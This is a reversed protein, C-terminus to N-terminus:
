QRRRGAPPRQRGPRQPQRQRRPRRPQRQRRRRHRYGGARQRRDPRQRPQCASEAFGQQDTYDALVRVKQGILTNTLALSAGSGVTTWDTGDRSAQWTYAIPGLGDADALTSAIGLTRGSALAGALTIGGTHPDSIATTADTVDSTVSEAFGHGDTYSASVRIQRGVQADGLTLSSGSGITSWTTGDSSAQWTYTRNGLGDLDALADAVILTQNETATGMVSVSGTAPSNGVGISNGNLLLREALYANGLRIVIDAGATADTGIYLMTNSDVAAIQVQNSVIGTGDGYSAVGSFVAGSVRILDGPTLDIITDNGEGATAYDFIDNGAGGTLTDNGAGGTLTDNGSGGSLANAVANGTLRDSGGGGSANEITVTDYIQVNDKETFFRRGDNYSIDVGLDSWAGPTLDIECRDTGSYEITDIGGGDWICQFYEQSSAFVYTDNGDHYSTNAGYLYQIARIDLSMPTTPYISINDGTDSVGSAVDYSMTTMSMNDLAFPLTASNGDAPDFPHKLGLAHGIEHILVESGITGPAFSAFDTPPDSNLWVDGAYSTAAPGYAYAWTTSSMTGTFAFRLDGASSTNDAVQVFSIDAVSAWAALAAQVGAQGSPALGHYESNHPEQSQDSPSGYGTAISTSWTSDADPFSYTLTAGSGISGGWRSMLLLADINRVDSLVVPSVVGLSTPTALVANFADDAFAMTDGDITGTAVELAWDGGGATAGTLNNSAAVDAGTLRALGGIFELGAQGAAVNCGYLLIDGGASLSQGISKLPDALTALDDGSILSAGLLLAGDSGHSVVHVADIGTRGQLRTAIQDLGGSSGDILYVEISPDFQRVLTEQDQIRFDIFVLSAGM